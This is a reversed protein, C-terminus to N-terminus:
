FCNLILKRKLIDKSSRSALEQNYNHVNINHLLGKIKKIFNDQLM